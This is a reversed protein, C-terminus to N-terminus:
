LLMQSFRAPTLPLRLPGSFNQLKEMVHHAWMFM